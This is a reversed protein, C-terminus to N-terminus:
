GKLGSKPGSFKEEIPQVTEGRKRKRKPEDVQPPSREEVPKRDEVRREPEFACAFIVCDSDVVIWQESLAALLSVCLCYSEQRWDLSTNKQPWKWWYMQFIHYFSIHGKLSIFSICNDWNCTTQLCWVYFNWIMKISLLIWSENLVYFILLTYMYM